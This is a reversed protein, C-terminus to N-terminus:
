GGVVEAELIHEVGDNAKSSAAKHNISRYHKDLTRSDTHGLSASMVTMEAGNEGMSSVLIHRFYHMTLQPIGADKALQVLQRKPSHLEKGTRPSKFVLGERGGSIDLLSERIIPSLSYDQDEGIKNYEAEITYTNSKLDISEWHLTRIENWRRGFLAFLFLTRYFADDKYREIIAQHLTALKETAKVVKKKPKPKPKGDPTTTSPPNIDPLEDIARNSKAYALIPKLVQFLVKRITRDSFSKAVAGVKQDSYKPHSVREMETRIKDIDYGIIHSAKKKGIFPQIHQKYMTKREGNWKTNSCKKTFYADAIFDMKTDPNFPNFMETSKDEKFKIAAAIAYKKRDPKNWQKKTYDITKTFERGEIKFRYLFRDYNKNARLGRVGAMKESYEKPIAM